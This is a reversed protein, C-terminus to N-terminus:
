FDIGKIALYGKYYPHKVKRMDTILDCQKLITQYKRHGTLILHPQKKQPLAHVKQILAVVDKQSLLGEEVASMVEDLVIVDFKGSCIHEGAKQLAKKAASTHEFKKKTDGLIGVFGKGAVVVRVGLKKLAVREGSPWEESKFFQFFLVRKHYGRARVAVGIAASTKGKGNGIYAIVVGGPFPKFKGKIQSTM